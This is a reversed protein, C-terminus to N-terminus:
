KRSSEKEIGQLYRDLRSIAKLFAKSSSDSSGFLEEVTPERHLRRKLSQYKPLIKTASPEPKGSRIFQQRTDNLNSAPVRKQSRDYKKRWQAIWEPDEGIITLFNIYSTFHNRYNNRAYRGYKGIQVERPIRGLRKKVALYNKLLEFDDIYAVSRKEDLRALYARLRETYFREENQKGRNGM